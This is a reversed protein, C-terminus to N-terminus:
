HRRRYGLGFLGTLSLLGLGAAVATNSNNENTQPLKASNDSKVSKSVSENSSTKTNVSADAKSSNAMSNSSSNMASATSEMSDNSTVNLAEKNDAFVVSKAGSKVDKSDMMEIVNGQPDVLSGNSSVTWGMVPQNQSNVVVQGNASVHYGSDTAVKASNDAYEVSSNKSVVVNANSTANSMMVSNNSGAKNNSVTESPKVDNNANSSTSKNDNKTTSSSNTKGSNVVANSTNTDKSPTTTSPKNNDKNASSTTKSDTKSSDNNKNSSENLKSLDIVDGSQMVLTNGKVDVALPVREGKGNITTADWQGGLLSHSDYPGIHIGNAKIYDILNDKLISQDLVNGYKDMVVPKGTLFNAHFEYSEKNNKDQYAFTYGHNITIPVIGQERLEKNSESIQKSEDYFHNKAKAPDIEKGFLDFMKGDKVVIYPAEPFTNKGTLISSEKSSNDYIKNGNKDVVMELGDKNTVHIGYDKVFKNLNNHLIEPNIKNGYTDTVFFSKYDSPDTYNLTFVPSYPYTANQVNTNYNYGDTTSIFNDMRTDYMSRYSYTLGIMAQFNDAERNSIDQQTANMKSIDESYANPRDITYGSSSTTDVQGKMRINYNGTMVNRKYLETTYSVVGDDENKDQIKVNNGDDSIVKQYDDDIHKPSFDYDRNKQVDKLTVKQNNDSENSNESVNEAQKDNNSNGSLTATKANVDNSTANTNATANNTDNHVEDAHVNSNVLAGAGMLLLSAAATTVVKPYKNPKLM